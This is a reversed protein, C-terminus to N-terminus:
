LHLVAWSSLNNGNSDLPYRLADLRIKRLILPRVLFRRCFVTVEVMLHRQSGMITCFGLKLRSKTAGRSRIHSRQWSQLPSKASSTSLTREPTASKLNSNTTAVQLASSSKSAPQRQRISPISYTQVQMGISTNKIKGNSPLWILRGHRRQLTLYFRKQQIQTSKQEVLLSSRFWSSSFWSSSFSWSVACAVFGVNKNRKSKGWDRWKQTLLKMRRKM